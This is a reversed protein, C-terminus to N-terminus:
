LLKLLEPNGFPLGALACSLWVKTGACPVPLKKFNESMIWDKINRNIFIFKLIELDLELGTFNRIEQGNINAFIRIIEDKGLFIVFFSNKNEIICFKYSTGSLEKFSANRYIDSEKLKPIELSGITISESDIDLINRNSDIWKKDLKIKEKTILSIPRLQCARILWPYFKNEKYSGVADIKTAIKKHLQEISTSKHNM